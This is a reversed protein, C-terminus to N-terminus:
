ALSRLCWDFAGFMHRRGEPHPLKGGFRSPVRGIAIRQRSDNTQGSAFLDCAQSVTKADLALCGSNPRPMRRSQATMSSTPSPSTRARRPQARGLSLSSLRAPRARRVDSLRAVAGRSRAASGPRCCIRARDGDSRLRGRWRSLARDRPGAASRKAWRRTPSAPPRLTAALRSQRSGLASWRSHPTSFARRRGCESRCRAANRM